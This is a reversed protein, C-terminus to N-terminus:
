WAFQMNLDAISWWGVIIVTGPIAFIKIPPLARWTFMHNKPLDEV